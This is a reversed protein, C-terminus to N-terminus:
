RVPKDPIKKGHHSEVFLRLVLSRTVMGLLTGRSDIVPIRHINNKLFLRYADTFQAHRALTILEAPKKLKPLCHAITTLLGESAALRLVDGEGIMTLLRDMSDVVAVGSVQQQIMREIVELLKLEPWVRVTDKTMIEEITVAASPKAASDPM